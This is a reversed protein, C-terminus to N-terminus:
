TILLTITISMYKIIKFTHCYLSVANFHAPYVSGVARGFSRICLLALQQNFPNPEGQGTALQLLPQLLSPLSSEDIFVDQPQQLKSNFVELMKRRVSNKQNLLLSSLLRVFVELPLLSLISELIKECCAVFQRKANGSKALQEFHDTNIIAAELLQEFQRYLLQSEEDSTGM